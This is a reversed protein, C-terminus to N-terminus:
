GGPLAAQLQEFGKCIGTAGLLNSQSGCYLHLLGYIILLAGIPLVFALIYAPMLLLNRRNKNHPNNMPHISRPSHNAECIFGYM